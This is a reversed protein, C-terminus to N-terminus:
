PGRSRLFSGLAPTPLDRAGLLPSKGLRWHLGGGQVGMERGSGLHPRPSLLQLPRQVVGELEGWVPHLPSPARLRLLPLPGCCRQFGVCGCCLSLTAQGSPLPSSADGRGPAATLPQQGRRRQPASNAAAGGAVQLEAAHQGAPWAPHLVESPALTRGAAHVRRRTAQRSWPARSLFSVLFAAAAAAARLAPKSM